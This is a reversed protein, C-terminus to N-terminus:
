IEGADKLEQVHKVDTEPILAVLRNAEQNGPSYVGGPFEDCDRWSFKQTGADIVKFQSVKFGFDNILVELIKNARKLALASDKVVKENASTRAISGVIYVVKGPNYDFYERLYNAYDRIVKKAQTADKFDASDPKFGVEASHIALTGFDTDNTEISFDVVPVYPYPNELEENSYLPDGESAEYFIEQTLTAGCKEELYITWFDVLRQEAESSESLDPQPDAVNGLGLFTVEIDSLDTYSSSRIRSLVDDITGDMFNLKRMDVNGETCIGTDMILIHKESTKKSNLVKKAQNLAAQLDCGSEQARVEDSVLKTVIADLMLGVNEEFLDKNNASTVLKSGNGITFEETRPKGDCVILTVDVEATRRSGDKEYKIARLILEKAQDMMSESFNNSNAHKGAIIVLSIAEQEYDIYSDAKNSDEKDGGCGSLFVFLFLVLIMVLVKKMVM